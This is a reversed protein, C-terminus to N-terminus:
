APNVSSLWRDTRLPLAAVGAPHVIFLALGAWVGGLGLRLGYALWVM